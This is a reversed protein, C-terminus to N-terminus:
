LSSNFHSHIEAIYLSICLVCMRSMATGAIGTDIAHPTQWQVCSSFSSFSSFCEIKMRSMAIGTDIAHPAQWQVCSSISIYYSSVNSRRYVSRYM